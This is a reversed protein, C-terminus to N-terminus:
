APSAIEGMRCISPGTVGGGAPIDGVLDSRDTARQALRGKGQARGALHPPRRLRIGACEGCVSLAFARLRGGRAAPRHSDRGGGCQAARARVEDRRARRPARPQFLARAHRLVAAAQLEPVAQATGVATGDRPGQRDGGQAAGPARARCRAHAPGASPGAGPDQRDAGHQLPRLPRQLPGLQAHEVDPRLFSAPARQFRAVPPEDGHHVAGADRRSQLAARRGRRHRSRPRLRGLRRRPAAGRQM